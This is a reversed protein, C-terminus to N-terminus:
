ETKKTLALTISFIASLLALPTFIAKELANQSYFNGVTNLLFMAGMVWLGIQIVFNPVEIKVIGAKLLVIFLFLSNTFLSFTEMTHMQYRDHIRGGWVITYPIIGGMILLHFVLSASFLFISGWLAVKYLNLNKM